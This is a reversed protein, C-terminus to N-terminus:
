SRKFYWVAAGKKVHKLIYPVTWLQHRRNEVPVCEFRTAWLGGVPALGEQKLYHSSEKKAIGIWHRPRHDPFRALAHFHIRDISVSIVEIERRLLSDVFEEVARVRQRVTM